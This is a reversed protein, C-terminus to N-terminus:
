SRHRRRDIFRCLGITLAIQVALVLVLSTFALINVEWYDGQHTIFRAVARVSALHALTGALAIGMGIFSGLEFSLRSSRSASIAGVAMPIAITGVISPFWFLALLFDGEIEPAQFLM